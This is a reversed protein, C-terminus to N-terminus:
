AIDHSNYQSDSSFFLVFDEYVKLISLIEVQKRVEHFLYLLLQLQAM